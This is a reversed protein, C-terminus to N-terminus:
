SKGTGVTLNDIWMSQTVPSGDGIYPAIVFQNFQMTANAATRLLVDHHDIILQGDFWYQIVGDNAGKGNVITNMRVYAEVFHWDNKYYQGPSDTFYQASARWTKENVYATGNSYCDDPYGDSSGNCGAVGRSETVATLDVGIKTQDVNSGDQIKMQPTGGNEEVYTTLHDFSLGSYDGDATTLFHFEHPHYPKQSGVWNTSYKVWYGLYVSDSPAFKHRVASGTTPTTAGQNFLYQISRTSGTVHESTSLLPTTNDYWGRTSLNADEFGEQFLTTGSPPPTNPPTGGSTSGPASIYAHDYWYYDTETKSDGIGGWTPSFQFEGFCGSPHFSVNTYNGIMTGDMWWRVIGDSNGSTNYKFYLEIKHWTGLAVPVNNVNPTLWSWNGWEPAVRLEFPGGTPGYMTMYLNGCTSNRSQLFMIKNVFSSHGQWPNSAKWAFGVFGEDFPNPLPYYMTAPATGGGFGVPYKWQGVTPASVPASADTIISADGSSNVTNWGAGSLAGVSWDTYPVFGAPEHPWPSTTGTLTAFTSDPSLALNGAADRSRVRFHYTTGASLGSLAVTHATVLSAALSTSSGYSSTTGFDVQSDSAENSTWTITAVSTGISSATVLSLVPPTTDTTNSVTVGVAASTRTNGAADRAVATLTHSGNATTTTNWSVSFPAGLVEAGLNAGDLRFQVGAVGVNDSATATVSMTGSVTAGAGPATISVTPPTSDVTGGTYNIQLYPWLTSDTNKTSAFYRWRDAAKSADSNLLVGFNTSPSALWEQVLSTITWTKYGTTKDIVETDYPTSIDAQALPINQSCCANPTWPTTGDSTYGTAGTIVPNKNLIKNATITYTSDTTTDSSILSLKLTASQITAGAPVSSLDFKMLIANAVQQSPWTYTTLQPSTSYNTQDLNISTDLPSLRLVSGTSNSVSVTVAASTAVNGQLDRVVAALTHTGNSATTTDWPLSYPPNTDEVGLNAGDLRFQVGAVGATSSTCASVATSGSLTAGSAPSVLWVTPPAAAGV